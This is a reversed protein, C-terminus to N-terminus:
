RTWAHGCKNCHYDRTLFFSAIGLTFLALARNRGAHPAVTVNVTNCAPCRPVSTDNEDVYEDMDIDAPISELYKRASAAQKVPVRLAYGSGAMAKYRSIKGVTAKIGKRVLFDAALSAETESGFSRISAYPGGGAGAAANESERPPKKGM